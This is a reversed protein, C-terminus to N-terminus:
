TDDGAPKSTPFFQELHQLLYHAYATVVELREFVFTADGNAVAEEYQQKFKDRKARTWSITNM